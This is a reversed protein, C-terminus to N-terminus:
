PKVTLLKVQQTAILNRAFQDTSLRPDAFRCRQYYGGSWLLTKGSAPAVNFTLMGTASVTYSAPSVLAVGAADALYISPAAALDFIPQLFQVPPTAGQVRQTLGVFRGRYLEADAFYTGSVGDGTYSSAGAGGLLQLRVRAQTTTSGFTLTVWGVRMGNTLWLVGAATAAGSLETVSGTSLDLNARAVEASSIHDIVVLRVMHRGAPLMKCGYTYEQGPVVSIPSLAMFHTGSNTSEVLHCADLTDRSPYAIGRTVEALTWGSQMSGSYGLLNVPLNSLARGLQWQTATGNTIGLQQLTVRDDDRDRFLMYDLGGGMSNFLDILRQAEFQDLRLAAYRIEYLTRPFTETSSRFERGNASAEVHLGSWFPERGVPWVQSPLEPFVTDSM